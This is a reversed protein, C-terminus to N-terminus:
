VVGEFSARALQVPWNSPGIRQGPWNCPGIARALKWNCPTKEGTRNMNSILEATEVCM